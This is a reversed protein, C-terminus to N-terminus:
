RRCVPQFSRRPGLSYRTSRKLSLKHNVSIMERLAKIFPQVNKYSTRAFLQKGTLPSGGVEMFKDNIYNVKWPACAHGQHNFMLINGDKNALATFRYDFRALQWTNGTTVITFVRYYGSRIRNNQGSVSLLLLEFTGSAGYLRSSDYRAASSDAGTLVVLLITSVWTLKWFDIRMINM